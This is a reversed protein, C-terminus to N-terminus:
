LEDESLPIAPYFDEAERKKLVGFVTQMRELPLRNEPELAYVTSAFINAIDEKELRSNGALESDLADIYEFVSRQFQVGFKNYLAMPPLLSMLKERSTMQQSWERGSIFVDMEPAASAFPASAAFSVVAIAALRRVFRKM